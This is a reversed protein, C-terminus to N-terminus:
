GFSRGISSFHIYQYINSAIELRYFTSTLNSQARERESVVCKYMHTHLNQLIYWNKTERSKREKILIWICSCLCFLFFCLMSENIYNDGAAAGFTLSLTLREKTVMFVMLWWWRDYFARWSKERKERERINDDDDDDIIIKFNTCTYNWIYMYVALYVM